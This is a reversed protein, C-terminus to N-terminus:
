YEVLFIWKRIDFNSYKRYSVMGFFMHTVIAVAFAPASVYEFVWKNINVDSLTEAM